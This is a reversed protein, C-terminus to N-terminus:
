TSFDLGLRIPHKEGYLLQGLPLNWLVVGLLRLALPGAGHSHCERSVPSGCPTAEPGTPSDGPYPVVRGLLSVLTRKSAWGMGPPAEQLGRAAPTGCGLHPQPIQPSTGQRRWPNQAM